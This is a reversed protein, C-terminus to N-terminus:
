HIILIIPIILQVLPLLTLMIAEDGVRVGDM